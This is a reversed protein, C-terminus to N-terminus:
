TKEKFIKDIDEQTYFLKDYRDFRNKVLDNLSKKRKKLKEVKEATEKQSLQYGELKGTCFLCLRGKNDEDGCFTYDEEYEVSDSKGCGKLIEKETPTTM